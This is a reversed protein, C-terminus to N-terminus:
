TAKNLVRAMSPAAQEPPPESLFAEDFDPASWVGAAAGDAGLALGDVGLASLEDAAGAAVGPLGAALGADGAEGDEGDPAVAEPEAAGALLDAAPVAELGPLLVGPAGEAPLPLAGAAGEM